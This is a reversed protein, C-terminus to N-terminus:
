RGRTPVATMPVAPTDVFLQAYADELTREFASRMAENWEAGISFKRTGKVRGRANRLTEGNKLLEVDYDFVAANLNSASEAGVGGEVEREFRPTMRHIRLVYGTPPPTDATHVVRFHPQLLATWNATLTTRFRTFHYRKHPRKDVLHAELIGPDVVITITKAEYGELQRGYPDVEFYGLPRGGFCATLLVM